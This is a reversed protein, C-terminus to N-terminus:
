IASTLVIDRAIEVVAEGDYYTSYREVRIKVIRGDISQGNGPAYIHYPSGILELVREVTNQENLDGIFAALLEQLRKVRDAKYQNDGYLVQFDSISESDSGSIGRYLYFDQGGSEMECKVLSKFFIGDSYFHQQKGITGFTGTVIPADVTYYFRNQAFVQDYPAFENLNLKFEQGKESIAIFDFNNNLRSDFWALSPPHFFVPSALIVCVSIFLNRKSYLSTSDEPEYRRLLYIFGLNLIIWKWFFIGSCIFIGIHLAEFALLLLAAIRKQMLILLALVQIALVSVLLMANFSRVVVAIDLVLQQPLINMWGNGYASVILNSLDNFRLWETYNPSIELKSIGPIFYNSAHLSLALIVFCRADVPKILFVLLYVSFLILVDFLPKQDTTTYGGIPYNFQGLVVLVAAVFPLVYFPSRWAMIALLLVAARDALHLEGFFFNVEYTSYKWALVAVVLAVFNRIVVVGSLSDWTISKIRFCGFYFLVVLCLLLAKPQTLAALLISSSRYVEEDLIAGWFLVKQLLLFAFLVVVYEIFPIGWFRNCLRACLIKSTNM